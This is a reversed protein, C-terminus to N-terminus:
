ISGINVCVNGCGSTIGSAPSLTHCTLYSIHHHTIKQLQYGRRVTQSQVLLEESSQTIEERKKRPTLTGDCSDLNNQPQTGYTGHGQEEARLKRKEEGSGTDMEAGILEQDTNNTSGPLAM